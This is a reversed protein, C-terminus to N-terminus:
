TNWYVISRGVMITLAAAMAPMRAKSIAKRVTLKWENLAACCFGTFAKLYSYSISVLHYVGSKLTLFDSQQYFPKRFPAKQKLALDLRGVVRLSVNRWFCFLGGFPLRKKQPPLPIRVGPVLKGTRCNLLSSTEAM